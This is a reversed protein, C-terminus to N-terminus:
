IENKGSAAKVGMTAMEMVEDPWLSGGSEGGLWLWDARDRNGEASDPVRDSQGRAHNSNM